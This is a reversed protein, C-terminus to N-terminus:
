SFDGTEIHGLVQNIWRRGEFTDLLEMPKQKGLASVTTDMWELATARDEFVDIARIFIKATDLLSESLAESLAEKKFLRPLNSEDIHAVRALAERPVGIANLLRKARDGAIGLRVSRIYSAPNYLDETRWGSATILEQTLNFKQADRM